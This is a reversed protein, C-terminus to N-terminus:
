SAWPRMCMRCSKSGSRVISNPLSTPSRWNFTNRGCINLCVSIIDDRALLEHYREPTLPPRHGLNDLANRAAIYLPGHIDVLTGDLDFFIAKFSREM